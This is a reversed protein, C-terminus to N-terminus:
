PKLAARPVYTSRRSAPMMSAAFTMRQASSFAAETAPTSRSASPVSVSISSFGLGPSAGAGPNSQDPLYSAEATHSESLCIAVPVRSTAGSQDAPGSSKWSRSAASRALSAIVRSTTVIGGSAGADSIARPRRARYMWRTNTAAPECSRPM